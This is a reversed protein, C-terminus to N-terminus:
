GEIPGLLGIEQGPGIPAAPRTHYPQPTLHASRSTRARDGHTPRTIPSGNRRMEAPAGSTPEAVEPHIGARRPHGRPQSQSRPTPDPPAHPDHAISHHNGNGGVDAEADGDGNGEGEGEAEGGGKRQPSHGPKGAGRDPGNARSVTRARAHPKPECETTVRNPEHETRTENTEGRPM